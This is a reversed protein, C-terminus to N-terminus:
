ATPCRKRPPVRRPCFARFDGPHPGQAFFAPLAFVGGAFILGAPAAAPAGARRAGGPSLSLPFAAGGAAPLAARAGAPVGACGYLRGRGRMERRGRLATPSPSRMTHASPPHPLFSAFFLRLDNWHPAAQQGSGLLALPTKKRGPARPTQERKGRPPQAAKGQAWSAARPPAARCYFLVAKGHSEPHLPHSFPRALWWPKGAGKLIEM